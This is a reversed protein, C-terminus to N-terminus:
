LEKRLIAGWTELLGAASDPIQGATKPRGIPALAVEGPGAIAIVLSPGALAFRYTPFCVENCASTARSGANMRPM